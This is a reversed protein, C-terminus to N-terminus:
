WVFRLIPPTEGLMHSLGPSGRQREPGATGDSRIPRPPIRRLLRAPPWGFPRSVHHAGRGSRPPRHHLRWRPRDDRVMRRFGRGHGTGRDCPVADARGTGSRGLRAADGNRVCRCGEESCCDGAPNPPRERDRREGSPDTRCAQDGCAPCSLGRGNGSGRRSDHRDAARTRAFRRRSAPNCERTM